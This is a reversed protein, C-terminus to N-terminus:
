GGTITLPTTLVMQGPGTLVVQGLAARITVTKTVPSRYTNITFTASRAGAPVIMARHVRVVSSDSSSLGVLTDTPMVAPLTVTATVVTGGPVPSPFTLSALGASTYEYAGISPPNPRLNGDRDTANTSDAIGRGICPSEGELHLDTPASVFLPNADLNTPGFSALRASSGQIDCYSATVTAGPSGFTDNAIEAGSPAYDSYFIDDTLTVAGQNDLGGGLGGSGDANPGAFNGSVTCGTMTLTGDSYLGAGSGGTGGNDASGGFAGNGSVVCGTLTLGGDNYLGGGMGSNGDVSAFASNGSVTCNTLITTGGSYVGAAYFANNVSVTCGTLALASDNGSYIGGGAEATSNDSLTCGTLALAGVNYIGGGYSATNGGLACGTLTLTGSNYIGGGAGSTVANPDNFASGDSLNLGSIAVQASPSTINLLRVAGGGDVGVVSAGPGIITMSATIDLEGQLAIVGSVGPGFVITAGPDANAFAIASRLTGSDDDLTSTVTYIGAAAAPRIAGALCCALLLPLLGACRLRERFLQKM